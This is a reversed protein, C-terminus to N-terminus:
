NPVAYGSSSQSCAPTKCTIETVEYVFCIWQLHEVSVVAGDGYMPAASGDADDALHEPLRINPCSCFLVKRCKVCTFCMGHICCHQQQIHEAPQEYPLQRLQQQLLAAAAMVFV